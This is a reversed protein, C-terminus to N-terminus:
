GSWGVQSARSVCGGSRGVQTVRSEGGSCAGFRVPSRGAVGVEGCGLGLWMPPCSGAWPCEGWGRGIFAVLGPPCGTGRAGLGHRSQWVGADLRLGHFWLAVMPISVRSRGRRWTVGFM